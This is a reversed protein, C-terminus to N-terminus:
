GPARCRRAPSAPTPTSAMPFPFPFPFPLLQSAGRPQPGRRGQSARRPAMPGAGHRMSTEEELPKLSGLAVSPVPPGGRDDKDGLVALDTKLPFHSTTGNDKPTACGSPAQTTCVESKVDAEGMLILSLRPCSGAGWAGDGLTLM